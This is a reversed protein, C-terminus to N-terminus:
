KKNIRGVIWELWYLLWKPYTILNSIRGDKISYDWFGLIEKAKIVGYVYTLLSGCIYYAILYLLGEIIIM